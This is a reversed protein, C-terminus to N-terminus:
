WKIFPCVSMECHSKLKTYGISSVSFLKTWSFFSNLDVHDFDWLYQQRNSLKMYFSYRCFILVSPYCPTKKTGISTHTKTHSTVLFFVLGAPYRAKFDKGQVAHRKDTLYHTKLSNEFVQEMKGQRQPKWGELLLGTNKGIWNQRGIAIHTM